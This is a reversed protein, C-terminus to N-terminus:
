FAGIRAVDTLGGFAAGTRDRDRLTGGFNYRIGVSFTDATLDFDQVDIRNYGGFVSVQGDLQVEGGVGGTWAEADMGGFEGTVYGLGGDFRLTDSAFYRGGLSVLWFDTEFEDVTAFTAGGTLTVDTLHVDGQLGYAMMLEDAVEAGGVFGAIRGGEIDSILALSGSLGGDADEADAYGLNVQAGLDYRVPMFVAAHVGYTQFDGDSGFADLETQAISAGVHGSHAAEDQAMAPACVVAAVAFATAFLSKKM